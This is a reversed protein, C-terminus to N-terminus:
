WKVSWSRSSASRASIVGDMARMSEEVRALYAAIDSIDQVGNTNCDEDPECEDPILNANCDDSTLDAIDTEDAIGNDNCDPTMRVFYVDEEGNFTASFALNAAANDSIMHYYDGIKNQQPWGVHSDFQPTVLESAHWTDGGDLSFSYYLESDNPVDPTADNRTDNWIADVRGNPAVSMTAFWDWGGPPSDTVRVPDSWTLGGDTSRIIHVDMPDAGDPVVSGLVYVNGHTPGGSHDVAVYVQGVIGGPNPGASGQTFGGLDISRNFDFTPTLGPDQADSSKVVLHGSQDLTAGALYLEGYPGVALTGWKMNPTPLAIPFEFSAGGDISRTFDNPPCCTFQINWNQYINGAGIGNTQDVTIWQKDGGYANVPEGWTVGGDTSKFLEASTGSSLSSYFFNGFPDAALVPDSRFQGPDLVGPFTWSQGGDDSYAIGAQRFNSEITDFQRWGIVMRDPDTLDIAISPENAADGVVNNGFEDVNVQVSTFRGVPWDSAPLRVQRKLMSPPAPPDDLVEPPRGGRAVDRRLGSSSAIVSVDRLVTEHLPASPATRAIVGHDESPSVHGAAAGLATSSALAGSLVVFFAARTIM